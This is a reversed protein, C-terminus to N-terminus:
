ADDEALEAAAAARRMIAEWRREVEAIVREPDSGHVHIEVPRGDIRVDVTRRAPPGAAVPVAAEFALGPAASAQAAVVAPEPAAPAQTAGVARGAAGGAAGGALGGLLGGIVTGIGPLLVSGLAAGLAAGAAGGVVDGAAESIEARGGGGAVAAGIHAAGLAAGIYPLRRAFRGVMSTAKAATTAATTATTATALGGGRLRRLLAAATGGGGAATTAATTATTAARAGRWDRWAQRGRGIGRGAAAIGRGAYVAGVIAATATIIADQYGTMTVVFPQLWGGFLAGVREAARDGAVAIQAQATEALRETEALYAARDAEVTRVAEALDRGMDLGLQQVLRMSERGLVDRALDQRAALKLATDLPSVGGGVAIGAAQIDAQRDAIDALLATVSGVALDRSGTAQMGVQLAAQVDRWAAEGTHGTAAWAAIAPTGVEAVDAVRMAGLRQGGVAVALARELQDGVMGLQGAAFVAEGVSRGSGGTRQIARALVDRAEIATRLDGTREVLADMAGFLDTERVGAAHAAQTVSERAAEAEAESMGADVTLRTYRAQAGAERMIASSGAVGGVIPAALRGLGAGVGGAAGRASAQVRRLERWRDRLERVERAQGRLRRGTRRTADLAARAYDGARRGVDRWAGGVTRAADSTRRGWGSAARGATTSAAAAGVLGARLRGTARTAAGAAAAARTSALGAAGVTSAYRTTAPTAARMASGTLGAARRTRELAQATEALPKINATATVVVGVQLSESM